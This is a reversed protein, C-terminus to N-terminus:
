GPRHVAQAQRTAIISEVLRLDSINDVDIAADAHPMPVIGVRLGMRRSLGDLAQKLTLRGALYRLIALWGVAGIVRLPKKRQREVRQWFNTAQRAQPTLFAFLNCGTYAGDSLQIFTRHTNPYATAVTERSTAAVALDWGGALARDLFLDVMEASLLAHDATTILAPEAEPLSALAAATSRSPSNANAVWAIGGSEIARRLAENAQVIDWDPGCLTRTGVHRAEALADLVRMVMPRGGIPTLCKRTVGTDRAVPDEPDRDAALVVANVHSAGQQGRSGTM